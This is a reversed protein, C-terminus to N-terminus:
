LFLLSEQFPLNESRNFAQDMFPHRPVREHITGWSTMDRLQNNRFCEHGWSKLSASANLGDISLTVGVWAGTYLGLLNM